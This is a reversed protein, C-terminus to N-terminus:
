RSRTPRVPQLLREIVQVFRDAGHQEWQDHHPQDISQHMRRQRQRCVNWGELLEGGMRRM